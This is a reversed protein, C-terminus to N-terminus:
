RCTAAAKIPNSSEHKRRLAFLCLLVLSLSDWAGGGAQRVDRPKAAPSTEADPTAVAEPRTTVIAPVADSPLPESESPAAVPTEFRTKLWDYADQVASEVAQRTPTGPQGAPCLEGACLGLDLAHNANTVIHVRSRPGCNAALVDGTLELPRAGADNANCFKIAQDYPVLQDAGGHVIHVPVGSDRLRPILANNAIFEGLDQKLCALLPAPPTAPDLSALDFGIKAACRSLYLPARTPDVQSLDFTADPILAAIATASPAADILRPALAALNLEASTPAGYFKSLADFGFGTFADYRGGPVGVGQLFDLFDLPPYFLLARAVDQGRNSAVWAALHAGASQGFVRVPGAAAGLAPGNALVWDLADEVDATIDTWTADHCETNGDSNGALRYFPAFVVFGRETFQAVTAELGLFSWGRNRWTGGHFVLLSPANTAVIDNKYVRMELTCTGRDPTTVATKYAVKKVYPQKLGDSSLVGLNLRTSLEATWPLSAIAPLPDNPQNTVPQWAAGNGLLMKATRSLRAECFELDDTVRFAVEQTCAADAFFREAGAATDGQICADGSLTYLPTRIMPAAFKQTLVDCGAEAAVSDLLATRETEGVSAWQLLLEGGRRNLVEVLTEGIGLQSILAGATKGDDGDKLLPFVTRGNFPAISPDRNGGADLGDLRQNLTQVQAAFKEQGGSTVARLLYGEFADIVTDTLSVSGFDSGIRGEGYTVDGSIVAHKDLVVAINADDYDLATHLAITFNLEFPLDLSLTGHDTNIKECNGVFPVAQGWVVRAPASILFHGPLNATITLTRLDDVDVVFRGEPHLGIEATAPDTQIEMPLPVACFSALEEQYGELAVNGFLVGNEISLGWHDFHARVLEALRQEPSANPDPTPNPSVDRLLEIPIVIPAAVAAGMWTFLMLTPFFRGFLSLSRRM